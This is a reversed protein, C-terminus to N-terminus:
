PASLNSKQSNPQHVAAETDSIKLKRRWNDTRQQGAGGRSLQTSVVLYGDPRHQRRSLFASIPCTRHDARFKALQSVQNGEQRNTVFRSCTRHDARSGATHSMQSGQRNQWPKAHSNVRTTDIQNSLFSQFRPRLRVQSLIQLRHVCALPITSNPFNLTPHKSKQKTLTAHPPRPEKETNERQTM